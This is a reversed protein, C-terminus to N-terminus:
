KEPPEPLHQWQTPNKINFNFTTWPPDVDPNIKIRYFAPSVFDHMMGNNQNRDSNCYGGTILITTGDKPSTEIPQWQPQAKLYGDAFGKNYAISSKTHDDTTLHWKTSGDNMRQEIQILEEPGVGYKAVFAFLIEERQDMIEKYQLIWKESCKEVFTKEKEETTKPQADEYFLECTSYLGPCGLKIQTEDLYPEISLIFKLILEDKTM